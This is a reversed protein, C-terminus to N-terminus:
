EIKEWLSKGGFYFDYPRKKNGNDWIMWGSVNEPFYTEIPVFYAGLPWDLQRIRKPCHWIILDRLSM